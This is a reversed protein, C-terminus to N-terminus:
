ALGLRTVNNATGGEHPLHIGPSRTLPPILVCCLAPFVQADAVASHQTLVISTLICSIIYAEVAAINNTPM